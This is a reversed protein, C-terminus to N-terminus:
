GTVKWQQFTWRVQKSLQDLMKNLRAAEKLAAKKAAPESLDSAEIEALRAKIEQCKYENLATTLVRAADLILDVMIEARPLSGHITAKDLRDFPDNENSQGEVVHPVIFAEPGEDTLFEPPMIGALGMAVDWESSYHGEGWFEFFPTKFADEISLSALKEKKKLRQRYLRQTEAPSLAM